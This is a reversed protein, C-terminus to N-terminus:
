GCFYINNLQLLRLSKSGQVEDWSAKIFGDKPFGHSPDVPNELRCQNQNHFIKAFMERYGQVFLFVPEPEANNSYRANEVNHLATEVGCGAIGPKNGNACGTLNALSTQDVLFSTWYVVPL